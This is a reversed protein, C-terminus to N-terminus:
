YMFFIQLQLLEIITKTFVSNAICRSERSDQIKKTLQTIALYFINLYQDVNRMKYLALIIKKVSYNMVIQLFFVQRNFM